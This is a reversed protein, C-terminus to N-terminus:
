YYEFLIVWGDEDYIDAESHYEYGMAGGSGSMGYKEAAAIVSPSNSYTTWKQEDPDYMLKFYDSESVFYEKGDLAYPMYVVPIDYQQKLHFPLDSDSDTMFVYTQNM